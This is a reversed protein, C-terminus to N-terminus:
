LGFVIFEVPVVATDQASIIMNDIKGSCFLHKAAKASTSWFAKGPLVDKGCEICKANFTITIELWDTIKVIKM